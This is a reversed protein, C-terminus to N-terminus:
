LRMTLLATSFDAERGLSERLWQTASYVDEAWASCDACVRLHAHQWELDLQSLESDLQASISERVRACETTSFSM